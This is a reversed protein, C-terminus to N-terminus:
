SKDLTSKIIWNKMLELYGEVLPPEGQNPDLDAIRLDHGANKFYVINYKGGRQKLEHNFRYGAIQSPIVRDKEGLIILISAETEAVLPVADFDLVPNVWSWLWHDAIPPGSAANIWKADKYKDLIRQHRDWNNLTKAFYMGSKIVEMASQVENPKFGLDEVDTRVDYLIQEYTTVGPPSILIIFDVEKSLQAVIPLVWGSQSIGRLGIRSADVHKHDKLLNVAAVADNALDQYDAHHWDGSSKGYGRKDYVFSLIGHKAFYEAELKYRKNDIGSDGSGHTFIVTPFPGTGNPIYLQGQLQIKDNYFTVDENHYHSDGNTQCLAISFSFLLPVIISYKM